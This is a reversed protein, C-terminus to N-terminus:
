ILSAAEPTPHQHLHSEESLPNIFSGSLLFTSLNILQAIIYIEHRIIFLTHFFVTSYKEALSALNKHLSSILCVDDQISALNGVTFLSFTSSYTQM